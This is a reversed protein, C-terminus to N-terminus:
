EEEIDEPDDDQTCDDTAGMYSKTPSQDYNNENVVFDEFSLVYNPQM